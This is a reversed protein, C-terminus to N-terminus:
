AAEGPETAAPPTLPPQAPRVTPAAPAHAAHIRSLQLEGPGTAVVEFQDGPALQAARFPGIPVTMQHGPSLRSRGKSRQKVPQLHLPESPRLPPPPLRVWKPQAVSKVSRGTEGVVASGRPAACELRREIAEPMAGSEPVEYEAYKPGGLCVGTAGDVATAPIFWSRGGSVTVFLFDCRSHDFHKVTGTWSQNGGRTAISVKWRGNSAVSSTKVQVRLLREELQAILDIDPSHFLPVWVHAGLRTLWAM